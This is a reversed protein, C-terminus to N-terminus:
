RGRHRGQASVSRRGRADRGPRQLWGMRMNRRGGHAAVGGIGGDRLGRAARGGRRYFPQLAAQRGRKGKTGGRVRGLV